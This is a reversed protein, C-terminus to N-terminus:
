NQKELDKSSDEVLVRKKQEYKLFKITPGFWDKEMFYRRTLLVRLRM